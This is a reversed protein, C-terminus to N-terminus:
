EYPPFDHYKCDAKHIMQDSSTGDIFIYECSDIKGYYLDAGSSGYIKIFNVKEGDKIELAMVKAKELTQVEETCSWGVFLAIILLITTKM